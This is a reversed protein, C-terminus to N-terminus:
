DQCTPMDDAITLRNQTRSRNIRKKLRDPSRRGTPSKPPKMTGRQLAHQLLAYSQQLSEIQIWLREAEDQVAKRVRPVYLTCDEDMLSNFITGITRLTMGARLLQQISEVYRVSEVAYHRYSNESRNAHLLGLKEYHRIARASVGTAKALEGILMRRHQSSRSM